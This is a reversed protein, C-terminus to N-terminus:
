AAMIKHVREKVQPTIKIHAEKALIVYAQHRIEKDDIDMWDYDRRAQLEGIKRAALLWADEESLKAYDLWDENVTVRDGSNVRLVYNHYTRITEVVGTTTGSTLKDGVAFKPQNVPNVAQKSVQNVVTEERRIQELAEEISPLGLRQRQRNIYELLDAETMQNYGLRLHAVIVM